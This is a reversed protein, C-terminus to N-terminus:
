VQMSTPHELLHPNKTASELTAAGVDLILSM